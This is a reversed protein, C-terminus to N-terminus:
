ARSRWLQRESYSQEPQTEFPLIAVASSRLTRFQDQRIGARRSWMTRKIRPGQADRNRAQGAAGRCAQAYRRDRDERDPYRTMKDGIFSIVFLELKIGAVEQEEISVIQGVGHSPYVIFDNTKFGQRQTTNKTNM